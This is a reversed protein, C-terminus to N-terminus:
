RTECTYPDNIEGTYQSSLVEELVSDEHEFSGNARLEEGEEGEDDAYVQVLEDWEDSVYADDGLATSELCDEIYTHM